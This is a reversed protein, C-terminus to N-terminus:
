DPFIRIWLKGGKRLYRVLVRRTAEIQRATVWAPELAKLGWEGFAVHDIITGKLRGRQQKRYKVKRPQLM